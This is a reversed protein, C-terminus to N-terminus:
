KALAVRAKIFPDVSTSMTSSTFDHLVNHGQKGGGGRHLRDVGGIPRLPEARAAVAAGGFFDRWPPARGVDKPLFSDAFPVAGGDGGAAIRLIRVM